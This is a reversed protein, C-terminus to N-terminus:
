ISFRFDVIEWELDEEDRWGVFFGGAFHAREPAVEDQFDPAAIRELAWAAFPRHLRHALHDAALFDLEEEAEVAQPLPDDVQGARWRRGEVDVGHLGDFRRPLGELFPDGVVFRVEVPEVPRSIWCIRGRAVEVLTQSPLCGLNWQVVFADEHEFGASEM